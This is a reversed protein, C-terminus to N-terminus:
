RLAASRPAGAKTWYVYRGGQAFSHRDIERGSDLVVAGAAGADLKHVTYAYGGVESHYDM